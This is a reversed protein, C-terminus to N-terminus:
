IMIMVLMDVVHATGCGLWRTYPIMNEPSPCLYQTFALTGSQEPKGYLQEQCGIQITSFVHAIFVAATMNRNGSRYLVLYVYAIFKFVDGVHDFYDGFMTVQNYKRAFRGDAVDFYYAVMWMIGAITKNGQTFSWLSYAASLISLSTLINPTFHAKYYFPQLEDDIVRLINDIPCEQSTPIKDTPM